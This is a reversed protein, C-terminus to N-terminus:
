FPVNPPVQRLAPPTRRRDTLFRDGAHNPHRAIEHPHLRLNLTHLIGGASPVGFFSGPPWFSEVDHLSVIASRLGLKTLASALQRARSLFQRLVHPSPVTPAALSSEVRSFAQRRARPAHPAHPSLGDMTGRM